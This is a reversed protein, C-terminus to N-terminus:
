VGVALVSAMARGADKAESLATDACQSLTGPEPHASWAIGISATVPLAQGAVDTHRACCAADCKPSPARRGM